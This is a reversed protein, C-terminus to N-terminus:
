FFGLLGYKNTNSCNKAVNFYKVLEDGVDKTYDAVSKGGIEFMGTCHLDDICGKDAAMKKLAANGTTVVYQLSSVIYQKEYAKKLAPITLTAVIGIITLTILLEALTFGKSKKYIM